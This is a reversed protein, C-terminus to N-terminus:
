ASLPDIFGFRAASSFGRRDIRILALFVMAETERTTGGVKHGQQARGVSGEGFSQAKRNSDNRSRRCGTRQRYRTYRSKAYQKEAQGIV